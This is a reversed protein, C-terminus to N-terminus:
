KVETSNIEGDIVATTKDLYNIKLNIGKIVLAQKKLQFIIENEGLSVVSKIGEIYLNKGGLNVLRYFFSGGASNMLKEIEVFLSM